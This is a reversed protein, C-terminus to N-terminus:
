KSSHFFTGIKVLGTLVERRWEWVGYGLALLGVGGLAWWGIFASTTDKVSEVAFAAEPVSGVTKINRCRNTDPNRERGEGCDALALEESSAIKKCRGTEPNRFQDDSCTKLISAATAISRCRNTEESRYQGEKCPASVSTATIINRCRNTEESRYQDDRCPKLSNTALSIDEELPFINSGGPTPIGYRWISALEDYAYSIGKRTDSSMDPYAVEQYIKTGYYDETWVFSGSNTLSLVGGDNRLRLLFYRHSELMLEDNEPSLTPEHWTFSTTVSATDNKSGIRLRYKALDIDHDTPNYVKIYDGCDLSSDTPACTRANALVEVIALGGVDVPPMYLPDSFLTAATTKKTFDTLFDGTQKLTVNGRQKHQAWIIGTPVDTSQISSGAYDITIKTVDFLIPFSEKFAFSGAIMSPYQAFTSYHKPLLWGSPFHLSQASLVDDSVNVVVQSMDVPKTSQNYLEIFDIGDNIAFSTMVLDPTTSQLVKPGPATITNVSVVPPVSAPTAPEITEAAAPTALAAIDSAPTNAREPNIDENNGTQVESADAAIGEAVVQPAPVTLSLFLCFIMLRRLVMVM